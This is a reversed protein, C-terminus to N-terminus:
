EEKGAEEEEPKFSAPDRQSAKWDVELEGSENLTMILPRDPLVKHLIMDSLPDEVLRMITRKINRAGYVPSFGEEVVKEGVTDDFTVDVKSNEHLNDTLYGLELRAIEAVN